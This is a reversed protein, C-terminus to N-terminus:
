VDRFEISTGFMGFSVDIRSMKLLRCRTVNRGQNTENRKMQMDRDRIKFNSPDDVDLSTVGV